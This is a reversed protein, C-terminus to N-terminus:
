QSVDPDSNVLVAARGTVLGAEIRSHLAEAEELPVVESVIPWIEGSAVLKLAEKVEDRTCYKSGIVEREFKLANTDLSFNQPVGGLVVLRGGRNLGAFGEELTAASAIFDIVVDVGWGGNVQRLAESINEKSADITLDAGTNICADFKEARTDVAVVNAQAWKAVQVMQLGLGGGAGIVAVWEEPKIRGKKIVKIPTAIADTIVGAEAPFRKYDLSDPIKIFNYEPLKIFEAYGGDCARGVNGKNQLCLTERGARCWYCEGCNLYYYATVPDGISLGNVNKGLEVIEATIEHGIVRPYAVKSRGARVHQITLGSGCSIVQAVAEGNDPKPDPIEMLQFPAGAATLVMARM